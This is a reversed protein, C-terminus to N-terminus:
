LHYGGCNFDAVFYMVNAIFFIMSHTHLATIQKFVFIHVYLRVCLAAMSVSVEKDVKNVM